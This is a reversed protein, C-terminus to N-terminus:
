PSRCSRISFPPGPWCPRPRRAPTSSTPTRTATLPTPALGLIGNESQLMVNIGAGIYDPVLTPLGIGLNVCQGDKLEQAARAAIQDRSLAM